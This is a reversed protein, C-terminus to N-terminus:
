LSTEILQKTLTASKASDEALKRIQDAVVAFGKGAEGARAAEIAANLSLLNTQSAIDEINEIISGIQASADSIRAIAELMKEMKQNSEETEEKVELARDRAERNDQVTKDMADNITRVVHNLKEVSDSQSTSKEALNEATAAMQEAGAAVQESADNIQHMVDRLKKNMEAISAQLGKFIGVYAEPQSSTVTFDGEAMEALQNGMDELILKWMNGMQLFAEIMEGIEDQSEAKLQLDLDGRQIQEAADVIVKMPELYRSTRRRILKACIFVSATELYVLFLILSITKSASNALVM